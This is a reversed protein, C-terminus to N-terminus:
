TQAKICLSVVALILNTDIEAVRYVLARVIPFLRMLWIEAM